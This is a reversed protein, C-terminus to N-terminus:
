YSAGKGLLVISFFFFLVIVADSSLNKYPLARASQLREISTPPSLDVRTGVCVSKAGFSERPQKENSRGWIGLLFAGQEEWGEEGAQGRGGGDERGAAAVCKTSRVAHAGAEGWRVGGGSGEAEEALHHRRPEPRNRGNLIPM